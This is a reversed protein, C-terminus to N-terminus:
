QRLPDSTKMDEPATYIPFSPRMEGEIGSELFDDVHADGPLVHCIM